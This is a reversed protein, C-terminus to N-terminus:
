VGDIYSIYKQIGGAMKKINEQDLSKDKTDGPLLVFGEYTSNLLSYIFKQLNERKIRIGMMKNILEPLDRVRGIKAVDDFVNYFVDGFTIVPKRYFLAEFGVTGTITAILSARKILNFTNAYPLILKVNPIKKIEKYFSLKDSGIHGSHAKVYLLHDAPIAKSINQILNLQNVYWRGYFLTSVEPQFHLPYFVYKEGKKPNEFYGMHKLWFARIKWKIKKIEPPIQGKRLNRLVWRGVRACFTFFSERYKDESQAKKPKETFNTIFDDAKKKEAESLSRKKIKNYEKELVPWINTLSDNISFRNRARSHVLEIVKTGFASAIICILFAHYSSPGYCVLYDPKHKSFFREAAEATYQFYSYAFERKIRHARRPYTVSWLQWLNLNYKKEYERIKKLDYKVKKPHFALIEFLKNKSIKDKLFSTNGWSSSIFVSDFGKKGMERSLSFFLRDRGSAGTFYCIKQKKM